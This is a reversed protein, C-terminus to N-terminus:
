TIKSKTDKGQRSVKRLIKLETSRRILSAVRLITSDIDIIPLIVRYSKPWHVVDVNLAIVM